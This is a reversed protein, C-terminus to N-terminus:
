LQPIGGSCALESVEEIGEKFEVATLSKSLPRWVAGHCQGPVAKAPFGWLLGFGVVLFFLMCRM